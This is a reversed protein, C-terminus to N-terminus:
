LKTQLYISIATEHAIPKTTSLLHSQQRKNVEVISSGAVKHSRDDRGVVRLNHLRHPM